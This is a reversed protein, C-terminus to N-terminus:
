VCYSSILYPFLCTVSYGIRGSSQEWTQQILVTEKLAIGHLLDGYVPLGKSLRRIHHPLKGNYRVLLHDLPRNGDRLFSQKESNERLYREYTTSNATDTGLRRVYLPHKGVYDILRCDSSRSRGRMSPVKDSDGGLYQEYSIEDVPKKNWSKM